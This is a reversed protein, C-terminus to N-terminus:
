RIYTQQQMNRVFSGFLDLVFVLNFNKDHVRDNWKAYMTDICLQVNHQTSTSSSHPIKWKLREIRERLIVCVIYIYVNLFKAIECWWNQICVCMKPSILSEIHHCLYIFIYIQVCRLLCMNLYQKIGNSISCRECFLCRMFACM